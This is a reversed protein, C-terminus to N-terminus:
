GFIKKRKRKRTPSVGVIEKRCPRCLGFCCPHKSNAGNRCPHAPTAVSVKCEGDEVNKKSVFKVDCKFCNKPWNETKNLYAVDFYGMSGDCAGFSGVTEHDCDWRHHKPTTPNDEQTKRKLPTSPPAPLVPLVAEANITVDVPVIEKNDAAVSDTPQDATGAAVLTKVEADTPQDATGTAVLTEAAASAPKAAPGAAVLAEM